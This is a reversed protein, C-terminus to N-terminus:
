KIRSIAGIHLDPRIRSRRCGTSKNETILVPKLVTKTVLHSRHWYSYIGQFWLYCRPKWWLCDGRTGDLVTNWYIYKKSWSNQRASRQSWFGSQISFLLIQILYFNFFASRMLLIYVLNWIPDDGMFLAIWKLISLFKLGDGWGTCKRRYWISKLTLDFLGNQLGLIKISNLLHLLRKKLFFHKIFVNSVRSNEYSIKHFTTVSYLKIITFFLCVPFQSWKKWGLWVLVLYYWLIEVEWSVIASFTLTVKSVCSKLLVLSCSIISDMYWFIKHM